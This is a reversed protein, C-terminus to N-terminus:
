ENRRNLEIAETEYRRSATPQRFHQLIHHFKAYFCPAIFPTIVYLFSRPVQHLPKVPANQNAQSTNGRQFSCRSSHSEQM